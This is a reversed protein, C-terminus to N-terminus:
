RLAPKAQKVLTRFTALKAKPLTYQKVDLDKKAFVKDCVEFFDAINLGATKIAEAMTNLKDEDKTVNDLVKITRKTEFFEDYKKPGTVKTIEALEEPKQPVSFKDATVLLVQTDNTGPVVLSKVYSGCYGLEDQQPRVHEIIATEIEAQAAELTKMKAKNDIFTAVKAKITDTVEAIVKDPNSTKTAPASKALADFANKM